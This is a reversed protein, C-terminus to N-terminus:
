FLHRLHFFLRIVFFLRGCVYKWMYWLSSLTGLYRLPLSGVQWRLDRLLSSNSGQTLFTWQFLFPCGVGTNKGPFDWSRLTQHAVTWPTASDTRLACVVLTLFYSPIWSLVLCLSLDTAKLSYKAQSYYTKRRNVWTKNSCLKLPGLLLGSCPAGQPKGGSSIQM